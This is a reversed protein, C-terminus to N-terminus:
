TCVVRSLSQGQNKNITMAFCVALPFQRRQFKYAIKNDSPTLPSRHILVTHGINTGSFIKAEVVRTGLSIIHLRTGNCLGEKQNLNRLLMVPVGVKLVLKHNPLGSIRLGNLLKDNIVDVIENTPALIVRDQSYHQNEYNQLIDPYVFDFLKSIPDVSDKILLDDPIDITAVGDNPGGITGEGIDLIWKAFLRTEEVDSSPTGMTLRLNKTLTLVNCESWIYSSCLSANVIDQRTGKQVVPLIQRFDGGFVVKGGFLLNSSLVDKLSRDLAQFGHKHHMPAEDWIILKTKELLQAEDTGPDMYCTSDENLDIPIHFRSHATRGGTLLLSAIGSSAVTLVIEGKSRIATSLTKWLYTKGTGGYGYVFFVGGKNHQVAMMIRDFVNKQENTISNFLTQFELKQLNQDYALEEQILSNSAISIYEADPFPMTQYKRLSSNNRLLIKEIEFLTLNKIQDETLSLEPSKLLRRQNYLIDDSLWKWTNIWVHEPRSLSDTSLMTAFLTRVGHGLSSHSAEENAEIYEQDDELLGLSYCADGAAPSVAHIRGISFGSKRREWRRPQAHWVFETPLEVYTLKRASAYKENCKMWGTFMSSSVSEVKELVNDLDDDAGYVINEQGPLHFPLRTVSPMWERMTTFPRKSDDGENVGRHYIDVRYGDEGNIFIIPYQLPVYLPHLESIPIIKGGMTTVLIDRPQLSDSIDGVILATVESTTPLNYTRGDNQSDLMEKLRQIIQLDMAKAAETSMNKSDGFIKQRNTLENDTDYIYLQSFKAKRGPEPQLSGISHYNQGSLRFVFPGKGRNITTDIKGRMLTFSFMSNYSRINKLFYKSTADIGRFLNEYEPNSPIYEPLEVKKYRCCLSYSGKANINQGRKAEDKWLKAHCIVCSVNQDGHDLYDKSVGSFIDVAFVQPQQNSEDTTQYSQSTSSSQINSTTSINRGRQYGNLNEEIMPLTVFLDEQLELTEVSHSKTTSQTPPDDVDHVDILNRKLTPTSCTPSTKENNSAITKATSKEVAKLNDDTVLIVDKVSFTDVSADVATSDSEQQFSLNTYNDIM